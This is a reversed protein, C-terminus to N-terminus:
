FGGQNVITQAENFDALNRLTVLHRLYVYAEPGSRNQSSDMEWWWSKIESPGRFGSTFDQDIMLVPASDLSPDAAWLSTLEADMDVFLWWRVYNDPKCAWEIDPRLIGTTGYYERIDNAGVFGAPLPPDDPTTYDRLQLRIELNTSRGSTRDGDSLQWMKYQNIGDVGSPGTAWYNPFYAEWTALLNGDTYGGDPYDILLDRGREDNAPITRKIGDLTADYLYPKLSKFTDADVQTKIEAATQGEAFSYARKLVVDSRAILTLYYSYAGTSLSGEFAGVEYPAVRPSGNRDQTVIPITAGQDILNTATDLLRYDNLSEDNFDGAVADVNTTDSFIAPKTGLFANNRLDEGIGFGGGAENLFTAIGSGFTCNYISLNDLGDEIRLAAASMDYIVANMMLINPGGGRFRCAWNSDYCTFGDLTFDTGEKVNLAAMNPIGGEWGYCTLDAISVSMRTGTQVKSDFANEGPVNGTVWGANFDTTLAGTWWTNVSGTFDINDSGDRNPDIQLSDGSVQNIQIAVATTLNQVNRLAIGHADPNTAGVGTYSDRLFHHVHLDELHVGVFNRIDLGDLIGNQLESRRYIFNIGNQVRVGRKGNDVQAANVDIDEIIKNDNEIHIGRLIPNVGTGYSTFTIPDAITGFDTNLLDESWSEGTKFAIVDGPMFTQANVKAVTKWPQAITGPSDDVGLTQDIFFDAMVGTETRTEPMVQAFSLNTRLM